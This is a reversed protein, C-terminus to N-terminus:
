ARASLALYFVFVSHLRCGNFHIKNRREGGRKQGRGGEKNEKAREREQDM